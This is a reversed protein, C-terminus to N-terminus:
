AGTGIHSQIMQTMRRLTSEVGKTNLGISPISAIASATMGDRYHLWFIARNRVLHEGKVLRILTEDIEHLRVQNEIDALSGSGTAPPDMWGQDSLPDTHYTDRKQARESKYHDHVVSTAVVKLFGLLADPHRLRFRRLLRCNHACLKLFTNQILDDLLSQPPEEWRRARRLVVKAIVPRFRRIFEM